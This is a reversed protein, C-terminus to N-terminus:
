NLNNTMMAEKDWFGIIIAKASRAVTGGGGGSKSLMTVGDESTTMMFKQSCLRVGAASPNRNGNSVAVACNFEHVKVNTSEDGLGEVLHEYETLGKWKPSAAWLTGDMGYIACSDCVNQKM